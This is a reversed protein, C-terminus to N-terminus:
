RKEDAQEKAAARIATAYFSGSGTGDDCRVAAAEMGEAYKLDCANCAREGLDCAGELLCRQEEVKAELREVEKELELVKLVAHDIIDQEAM